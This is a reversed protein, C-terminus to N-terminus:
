EHFRVWKDVLHPPAMKRYVHDAIRIMEEKTHIGAVPLEMLRYEVHYLWESVGTDHIGNRTYFRIRREMDAKEEPTKAYDPNEVEGFICGADPLADALKRLLVTGIGSGRRKEDVAIYDVLYCTRGRYAECILLAYALLGDRSFLGYGEYEGNEWMKGIHRLPRREDDPFDAKMRSDYIDAVEEFSLKKLEM